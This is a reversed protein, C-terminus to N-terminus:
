DNFSRVGELNKCHSKLQMIFMERNKPSIFTTGTMKGKGHEMIKVRERSLALGSSSGWGDIQEISKIKDYKIKVAIYGLRCKLHDDAMEYYAIRVIPIILLGMLLVTGFLIIYESPPVFFFLPIIFLVSGYMVINVWGDIKADFRM